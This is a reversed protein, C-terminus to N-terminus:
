AALARRVGSASRALTAVDTAVQGAPGHKADFDFALTRSYGHRDYLM